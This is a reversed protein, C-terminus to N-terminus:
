KARRTVFPSCRASTARRRRRRACFPARAPRPRPYVRALLVSHFLISYFRELIDSLTTGADLAAYKIMKHAEDAAPDIPRERTFPNRARVRAASRHPANNIRAAARSASADFIGLGNVAREERARKNNPLLQRGEGRRTRGDRAAVKWSKWEERM